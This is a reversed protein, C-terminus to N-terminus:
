RREITIKVARHDSWRGTWGDVDGEEIWNDICAYRDVQYGGRLHADAKDDLTDVDSHQKDLALMIFDIRATKTKGPRTFGTYTTMPGYPASQRTEVSTTTRSELHTFTDVFNFSRAGSPLPLPSIMNKYGDESPPSDITLVESTM